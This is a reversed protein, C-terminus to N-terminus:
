ESRVTLFREYELILDGCTLDHINIDSDIKIDKTIRSKFM